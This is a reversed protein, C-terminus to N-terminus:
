LVLLICLMVLITGRERNLGEEVKSIRNGEICIDGESGDKGIATSGCGLLGEGWGGGAREGGVGIAEEM